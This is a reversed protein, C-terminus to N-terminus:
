AGSRGPRTAAAASSSTSITLPSWSRRSSRPLRAEAIAIELDTSATLTVETDRPLYLCHGLGAFVNPRGGFTWTQGAASADATGSLPVFAREQGNAPLTLSGGATLTQVAFSVYTWGADSPDVSNWGKDLIQPTSM